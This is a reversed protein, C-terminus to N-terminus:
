KEEDSKIKEIEAKTKITINRTTEEISKIRADDLSLLEIIERVEVQLTQNM